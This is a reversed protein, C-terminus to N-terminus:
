RTLLAVFLAWADMGGLRNAVCADSAARCAAIARAANADGHAGVTFPLVRTLACFSRAIGSGCTEVMSTNDRALEPLSFQCNRKAIKSPRLSFDKTQPCLQLRAVRCKSSHAGEVVAPAKGSFGAFGPKKCQPVGGRIPPKPASQPPIQCNSNAIKRPHSPAQVM